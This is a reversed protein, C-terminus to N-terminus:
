QISDGIRSFDICFGRACDWHMWIRLARGVLNHEPVFGWSRSDLSRDRNDGMAFYHGDPVVWSRSGPELRRLHVLIPHRVDDLLEERLQPRAGPQNRNIGEGIWPGIVEQPAPEGNIYIVKDRYTITDGPLGIVRKIMNVGPQDVSRFVFVHGREPHGTDLIRTNLVPLRLGYAFKSVVIFDGILLTPQMSGSPIKFPEFLFSRFVLVLLLLPFFSRAYEVPASPQDSSAKGAALREARRKRLWLRDLLWIIGCLLTLLTIILAFDLEM